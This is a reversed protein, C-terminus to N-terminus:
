YFSYGLRLMHLNLGDNPRKISANSIHQFRYALEYQGHRGFGLGLGLLSGFQFATSYNRDALSTESLLHAGIGAEAFPSVGSSLATDRQMRFVPTLSLDYLDGNEGHAADADIYALEADWYGGVNWAGGNFWTHEWRNQLGLRYISADISDEDTGATLSVADVWSNGNAGVPAMFALLLLQTAAFRITLRM